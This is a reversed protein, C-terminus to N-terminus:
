ATTKIKSKRPRYYYKKRRPAQYKFIIVSVIMSIFLLPQYTLYKMIEFVSVHSLSSALLMMPAYPLFGQTSTAAVDLLCAVRGGPINFKDGIKKAIPGTIIISLTNIAITANILITLLIIFFQAQQPTKSKNKLKELLYNLGGNHKIVKALGSIFMFLILIRVMSKQGYFGEFIFSTADLFSFKNQLIGITAGFFSGVGLVALVDIGLVSMILVVLYPSINIYDQLSISSNIYQQIGEEIIPTNFFFLIILTGIFAPTALLVNDKFKDIMKSQTSKSAAITTDSIMSLNDGFMSGSIVISAMLAPNIHLSQAIGYAIPTFATITGLSSGISISFISVIIFVGPLIYAIPLCTLGINVASNIGGSKALIHSFATSFIFIYYMYLIATNASGSLFIEIKKHLSTPKSFTFFSYIVAIFASFIPLGNKVNQMSTYITGANDTYVNLLFYLLLFVIFPSFQLFTGVSYEPKRNVM